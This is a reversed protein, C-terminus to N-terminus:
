FSRHNCRQRGSGGGQVYRSSIRRKVTSGLDKGGHDVAIMQLGQTGFVIAPFEKNQDVKVEMMFPKFMVAIQRKSGRPKM